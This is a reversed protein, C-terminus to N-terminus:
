REDTRSGDFRAVVFRAIMSWYDATGGGWFPWARGGAALNCWGAAMCSAGSCM